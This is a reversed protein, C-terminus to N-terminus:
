MEAREGGFARRITPAFIQVPLESRALLRLSTHRRSHLCRPSKDREGGTVFMRAAQRGVPANVAPASIVFPLQASAVCVRAPHWHKHAERRSAVRWSQGNVM